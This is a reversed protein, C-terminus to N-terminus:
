CSITDTGRRRLCRQWSGNRSGKNLLEVQAAALDANAPLLDLSFAPLRVVAEDLPAQDILVEYVSSQLSKKDVGLGMTTNGQPDLDIM